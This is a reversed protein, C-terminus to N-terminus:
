SGEIQDIFGLLVRTFGAVEKWRGVMINNVVLAMRTKKREERAVGHATFAM